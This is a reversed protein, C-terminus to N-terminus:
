SPLTLIGARGDECGFALHRGAKDWAMATIESGETAPRVLLESADNLRVLLILGDEYGVALVYVNPHFAVRSVKAPRVGCERPAKGM